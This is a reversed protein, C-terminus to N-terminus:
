HLLPLLNKATSLACLFYPFSTLICGSWTLTASSAAIGTIYEWVPPHSLLNTWASCWRAQLIVLAHSVIDSRGTVVVIGEDRDLAAEEIGTITSFMSALSLRDRM